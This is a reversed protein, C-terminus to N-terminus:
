FSVAASLWYLDDEKYLNNRRVVPDDSLLHQVVASLELTARPGRVRRTVQLDAREYVHELRRDNWHDARHWFSSLMWRQNIDFRWLASALTEAALAQELRVSDPETPHEAKTSIRSGTLRLLHRPHPRWSLQAEAGQIDVSADNDPRFRQPNMPGSVLSDLQERFLRIDWELRSVRGYYGIEASRIREPELAGDSTQTAFFEPTDWGLTALPDAGYAGVLNEAKIHIDASKEYIDMTRLAEAYVFRLSQSPLFQYILAGRPNFYSGNLQDHEWYGGLNFYLPDALRVELNGFLRQSFNEVPEGIYTESEGQDLRLNAGIILRMDANLQLINEMELDHRREVILPNLQGCPAGANATMLASLRLLVALQEPPMTAPNGTLAAELADETADWDRNNAEFLERMERSFLLGGAEPIPVGPLVFCGALQDETKKYQTYVQVKIQHGDSVQRNWRMQAFAEESRNEPEVIFDTFKDFDSRETPLNLTRRSGGALFELTDRPNMEVHSRLNITQVSKQDRRPEGKYPETYGDDDRSAVTVRSTLGNQGGASTVRWDRVGNNGARTAATMGVVDDPHRTIINIVGQFANAGYAASAPGRTVEIREIDEIELPFDNWLVRALGPLYQTRGDIMVQMRRVDRTQTGHYSVTPVNGDVKVASMGPVMQLLQYIERAGSAEILERDIITVSAPVQSLPQSLRAPTLVIPMSADAFPMPNDDFASSHAAQGVTLFLAGAVVSWLVVFLKM